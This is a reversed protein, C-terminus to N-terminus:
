GQNEYLYFVFDTPVGSHGLQRLMAAVNGRHYTGHNVVHQVIESFRANLSGYKPHEISMPKDLDPTRQFLARYQDAVDHFMKRMEDVSKNQTERTWTGILPFIEDNSKGALVSLWLQDFIYMHAVTQAISPFVSQVATEYVEEPLEKLRDFLRNNAWVHYEFM